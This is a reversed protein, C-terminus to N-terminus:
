TVSVKEDVAGLFATKKYKPVFNTLNYYSSTCEETDMFCVKRHTLARFFRPALSGASVLLIFASLQAPFSLIIRSLV